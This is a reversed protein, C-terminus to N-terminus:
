RAPVNLSGSPHDPRQMLQLEIRKRNPDTKLVRVRITDGTYILDNVDIFEETSNKINSVHLIGTDGEPLQVLAYDPAVYVVAGLAEKGAPYDTEFKHASTAKEAEEKSARDLVEKVWAIAGEAGNQFRISAAIRGFDTLRVKKYESEVPQLAKQSEALASAIEPVGSLGASSLERLALEVASQTLTPQRTYARAFAERLNTESPSRGKEEYQTREGNLTEGEVNEDALVVSDEQLSPPATNQLSEGTEPRISPVETPLQVQAGLRELNELENRLDQAIEDMVALTTALRKSLTQVLEPVKVGPKYTDEHTLEGWAHQLLTRIQIECRIPTMTGGVPVPIGVILNIARYGSEKPTKIYDDEWDEDMKLLSRAPDQNTACAKIADVVKYVDSVTNCTVRTGVIDPIVGMIDSPGSILNHYKPTQAKLLLRNPSKIRGAEVRLRLRQSAPFKDDLLANLASTLNTLAPRFRGILGKEYLRDFEKLSDESFDM